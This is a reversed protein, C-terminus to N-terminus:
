GTWRPKRKELFASLGERAEPTARIAAIREATEEILADDISRTLDAILSKAASQAHPGGALVHTMHRAVAADLGGPPVWEHILGLRQAEPAAIREASLFLRRAARPGIARVVYPGIVSPILGM